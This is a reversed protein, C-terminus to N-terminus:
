QNWLGREMVAKAFEIPKTQDMSSLALLDEFTLAKIKFKNGQVTVEKILPVYAAKSMEIVVCVLQIIRIADQVNM